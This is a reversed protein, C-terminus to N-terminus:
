SVGGHNGVLQWANTDTKICAVASYQAAIAGTGTTVGNVSVGSGGTVSTTGAGAMIIDIRDGVTFAVSYNHPITVTNAGSNTMTLTKFADGIVLTYSAATQANM